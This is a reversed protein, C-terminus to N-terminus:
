RRRKGKRRSPPLGRRNADASQVEVLYDRYAPNIEWTTAQVDNWRATTLLNPDDKPFVHRYGDKERVDSIRAHLVGLDYLFDWLKLSDGRKRLNLPNGFLLVSFRSGLSEIHKRIVEASAKFSGADFELDSFSRIVEELQQCEDGVEQSLLSVRETSFKKMVVAFLDDTIKDLHQEIAKQCCANILQVADRPRERSRLVILDSWSSLESSQPMKPASGSFFAEWPDSSQAGIDLLALKLRQEIINKLHTRNSTLQRTLSVFHDTQDRQGDRETRLRRWVEERISVVCRIEPIRACIERAALIFAWIRNLHGNRNPAAFQDTDDIFLYFSRGSKSLAESLARQLRTVTSSSSAQMLASLDPLEFSKALKPLLRAMKSVVDPEADGTALAERYLVEDAGSVFGSKSAGLRSAIASMLSKYAVHTLEGVSGGERATSQDVDMPKILLTPVKAEGLVLISHEILASKGSGKKGVLIRPSGEPPTILDVYEDIPVFVRALISKEGEATGSPFYKELAKLRNM